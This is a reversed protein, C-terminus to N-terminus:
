IVEIELELEVGFKEKVVRRIREIIKLVDYSSAEGRNVIFNAHRMSVEADGVRLGKFGAADILEGARKSVGEPNKFVSGASPHSLDHRSKRYDLNQKVKAAIAEKPRHCGKLECSILVLGSGKFISSRYGFSLEDRSLFVPNGHQDLAEISLVCESIENPKEANHSVGANQVLAGGVTGPIGALFELGGFGKEVCRHVLVPLDMGCSVKLTDGKFEIHQSDLRLTSIVLGPFGEDSFLLNSGRGIVLRALGEDNSFSILGALEERKGPEAFFLAPGGIQFSTHASLPENSKLSLSINVSTSM